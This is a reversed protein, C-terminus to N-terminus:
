LNSSRVTIQEFEKELNEVREPLGKVYQDFFTKVLKRQLEMAISDGETIYKLDTFNDHSFGQISVQYGDKTSKNIFNSARLYRDGEPNSSVFLFPIKLQQYFLDGFQFGDLNIGAKFPTNGYSLQGATAGGLSHGFIGMKELDFIGSLQGGETNIDALKELVTRTDSAWLRTSENHLPTLKLMELYAKSNDKTQDSSLITSQWQGIETSNLESARQAYFANEPRNSIVEGDEKILLASEDQHGISVVIYGNSVLDEFVTQYVQSFGGYGHNYILVPFKTGSIPSAHWITHSEIESFYSIAFPPLELFDSLHSVVTKCRFPMKESSQSLTPYWVQFSLLRNNGSQKEDYFYNRLGIQYNGTPEILNPLEKKLDAENGFSIEAIKYAEKVPKFIAMFPQDIADREMRKTFLRGYEFIQDEMRRTSDVRYEGKELENRDFVFEYISRIGKLGKVPMLDSTYMIAQDDFISGIAEMDQNNEAQELQKIQFSSNKSGETQCAIFQVILCIIPFISKINTKKGMILDPKKIRAIVKQEFVIKKRM